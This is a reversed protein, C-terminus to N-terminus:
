RKAKTLSVGVANFKSVGPVAEGEEWRDEVAKESLRKQLLDFANNKVVYKYFAGWDAVQPKVKTVVTANALKGTVGTASSKPLNEILHDRYCGEIEELKKLERAMEQRKERATYYVDAVEALKKPMALGLKKLRLVPAVKPAEEEVPAAAAGRQAPAKVKGALAKPQRAPAVAPAGAVRSRVGQPRSAPAPALTGEAAM